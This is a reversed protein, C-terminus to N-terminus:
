RGKCIDVMKQLGQKVGAANGKMVAENVAFAASRLNTDSAHSGLGVVISLNTSSANSLATRATECVESEKVGSGQQVGGSGKAGGGGNTGGGDQVNAVKDERSGEGVQAKGQNRGSSCGSLVLIGSIAIAGLM